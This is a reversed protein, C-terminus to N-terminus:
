GAKRIWTRLASIKDAGKQVYNEGFARQGAQVPEIESIPIRGQIGHSKKDIQCLPTISQIKLYEFKLKENNEGQIFSMAGSSISQIELNFEADKNTLEIKNKNIKYSYVESEGRSNDSCNFIHLTIKGEPTVEVVNSVGNRLPVMGWIGPLLDKIPASEKEASLVSTFVLSFMVASVIKFINRMEKINKFLNLESCIRSRRDHHPQNALQEIMQTLHKQVYIQSINSKM